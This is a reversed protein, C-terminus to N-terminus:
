VYPAVAKAPLVNSSHKSRTEFCSHQARRAYNYISFFQEMNEYDEKVCKGYYMTRM